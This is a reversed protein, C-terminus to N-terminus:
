GGIEQAFRHAEDIVALTARVVMPWCLYLVIVSALAMAAYAFGVARM